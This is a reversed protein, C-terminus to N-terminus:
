TVYTGLPCAFSQLPSAFCVFRRNTRVARVLVLVFRLNTLLKTFLNTFGGPLFRKQKAARFIFFGKHAIYTLLNKDTGVICITTVYTRSTVASGYALVRPLYAIVRLAFSENLLYQTLKKSYM